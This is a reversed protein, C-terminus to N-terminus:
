RSKDYRLKEYARRVCEDRNLQPNKRSELDILREAMDRDTTLKLLEQYYRGSGALAFGAATLIFGPLISYFGLVPFLLASVAPFVLLLAATRRTFPNRRPHEANDRVASPRDPCDHGGLVVKKGCYPCTYHFEPEM